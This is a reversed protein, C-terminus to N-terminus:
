LAQLEGLIRLPETPLRDRNDIWFHHDAKSAVKAIAPLQRHYETHWAADNPNRGAAEGGARLLTKLLYTERINTAWANQKESGTTIPELTNM